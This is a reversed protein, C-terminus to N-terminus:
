NAGSPPVPPQFTGSRRRSIAHIRAIIQEPQLPTFRAPQATVSGGVAAAMSAPEVAYHSRTGRTVTRLALRPRALTSHGRNAIICVASDRDPIQPHALLLDGSRCFGGCDTDDDLVYITAGPLSSLLERPAAAKAVPEGGPRILATLPWVDVMTRRGSRLARGRRAALELESSDILDLVSWGMSELFQDAMQITVGRVGKLTNHLHPQSVGLRRALTSESVAGTELMRRLRILLLERLNFFNM